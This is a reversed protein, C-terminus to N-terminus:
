LPAGSKKHSAPLLLGASNPNQKADVAGGVRLATEHNFEAHYVRASNFALKADPRSNKANEGAFISEQFDM